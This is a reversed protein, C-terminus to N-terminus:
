HVHANRHPSCKFLGSRPSFMSWAGALSWTTQSWSRGAWDGSGQGERDGEVAAVRAGAVGWVHEM